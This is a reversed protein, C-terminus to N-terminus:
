YAVLTAFWEKFLTLKKSWAIPIQGWGDGVHQVLKKTTSVAPWYVITDAGNPFNNLVHNIESGHYAGSTQGPPAHDWFYNWVKASKTSYWLQTWFWTGVKSRDTFMSNYTGSATTSDNAAYLDLFRKVWVGSYTENVEEYYEELSIDLGFTAGNEDKNNGTIVPVDHAIGKKLINLYTDPMAYHDLVAEFMITTAQTSGTAGNILEEVTLQRDEAISSVNLNSLYTVGDELANDLTAYAEALSTCLPDHPDRVGSEIIAGVILGETLNSYLIHGLVALRHLCQESFYRLSHQSHGSTIVSPEYRPLVQAPIVKFTFTWLPSPARDKILSPLESSNWGEILDGEEERRM